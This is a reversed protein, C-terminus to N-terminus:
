NSQAASLSTLLKEAERVAASFNDAADAVTPAVPLDPTVGVGEIRKGQASIFDIQSLYLEAGEIKTKGIIGLLCGCSQSGVIKARGSEQMGVAFHESASASYSSILVVVPASYLHMDDDGVFLEKPVLSIGLFKPMKGTRTKAKGFSVKESFFREAIEEMAYAEGGANFRLDIILGKTDKLEILAKKYPKLFSSKFEDFRIYGINSPLRRSVLESASFNFNNNARRFLTVEKVQNNLDLFGLVVPTNEAGSLLRAYAFRNVANASSSKIAARKEALVERANRGDVATLIMGPVIGARAAESDAKVGFVVPKGEAEGIWLGVGVSQRSKRAAAEKPTLFNTHADGLEGVMQKVLSYFEADDKATEVRPLYRERAATWNVGNFNPDYYKRNITDWVKGFIKVREPPPIQPVANIAVLLILAPIGSLRLFNQVKVNM